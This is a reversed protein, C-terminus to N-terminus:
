DPESYHDLSVAATIGCIITPVGWGLLYFRIMPKPPLPMGPMDPPPAPPKNAKSFKKLMNSFFHFTLFHPM